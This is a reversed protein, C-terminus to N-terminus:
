SATRDFNCLNKLKPLVPFSTLSMKVTKVRLVSILNSIASHAFILHQFNHTTNNTLM